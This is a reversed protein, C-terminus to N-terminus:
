EPEKAPRIALEEEEIEPTDDDLVFCLALLLLAALLVAGGLAEGTIM